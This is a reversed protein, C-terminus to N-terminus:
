IASKACSMVLLKRLKEEWAMGREGAGWGEGRRETGREGREGRKRWPGSQSPLIAQGQPGSPTAISVGSYTRFKLSSEESTM